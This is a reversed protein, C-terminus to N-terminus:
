GMQIYKSQTGNKLSPPRLYNPRGIRINILPKQRHRRITSASVQFLKAATKSEYESLIANLLQQTSYKKSM